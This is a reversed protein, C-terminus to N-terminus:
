KGDRLLTEAERRVVGASFQSRPGLEDQSRVGDALAARAADAHGLRQQAMAVFFDTIADQYGKKLWAVAEEYRGARYAAMGLLRARWIFRAPFDGEQAPAKHLLLQRVHEGDAVGPVLLLRWAVTVTVDPDNAEEARRLLASCRRAYEERRDQMLCADAALCWTYDRGPDLALAEAFRAAAENGHGNDLCVRGCEALLEADAKGQRAAETLDAAARPWDGAVASLRGRAVYERAGALRAGSLAALNGRFLPSTPAGSWDDAHHLHAIIGRREAAARRAPLEEEAISWESLGNPDDNSVVLLRRSDPSFRVRPNFGNASPARQTASRLILVEEGTSTDLLRTLLRSAVALRTGDPSFTLDFAGGQEPETAHREVLPQGTALDWIRLAHGEGVAALRGGDASFALAEMAIELGGFEWVKQGTAVDYVVVVQNPGARLGAVALRAGSADLALREPLLGAPDQVPRGAGTTDWVRLEVQYGRGVLLAGATAVRRGDASLTVHRLPLAHGRLRVDEKGTRVEWCCAIRPDDRSIGALRRGSGDLCAIDAPTKWTDTLGTSVRGLLTHTGAELRYCLGGRKALVLQRGDDAFAIAETDGIGQQPLVLGSEPDATLDWIRLSGDHGGTVLVEGDPRFALPGVANTHGRLVREEFGRGVDSLRVTTDQGASALLRGDPSFAVAYVQGVHRTLTQQLQGGPLDWLIVKDSRSAALTRADPSFAISGTSGVDALTRVPTGRAADWLRLYYNAVTALWKGDPSFRVVRADQRDATLSPLSKGTDMDWFYIKGDKCAAALRKGDPSFSLSDLENRADGLTRLAAGTTADWLRVTHDVSCSALRAGDPSFALDRIEAQHGSLPEALLAGTAADRLVIKGPEAPQGRSTRFPDFAASALRKGDPSYAVASVRVSGAPLTLLEAHCLRDLYHWEWGLRNRDCLKLLRRAETVNNAQYELRARTVQSYYLLNGAQDKATEAVGKAQLATEAERRKEEREGAAARWEWSTGAFGAILVLFVAGLLGAVVPNRRGWRVLREGRSIRRARVPVGDLFRELDEALDLASAYRKRPEKQLCKLCVTELDRPLGPQLRRPSVPDAECVQQLTQTPTPAQFPARGTLLEYLIAGLAWVDAPVGVRKRDGRAQEPAMYSPTGAITGAATLSHEANLWKALGFDAIKPLLAAQPRGDGALAGDALLVNAPKLDRHVIGEKHAAHIGHALDAVLEAAVRPPQPRGRVHSALNGGEVLEMACYPLGAHAGVEYVAIVNPHRLRAAAEAEARFRALDEATAHAGALLVKLAVVRKLSLQRAKYVVGMGGRGLEELIEYGPIVPPKLGTHPSGDGRNATASGAPPPSAAPGRWTVEPEGSLGARVGSEVKKLRVLFEDEATPAQGDLFACCNECNELHKSIAALEAGQLRGAVFARLQEGDPHDQNRTSV